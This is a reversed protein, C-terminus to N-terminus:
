WRPILMPSREGCRGLSQRELGVNNMREMEVNAAVTHIRAVVLTRQVATRGCRRMSLDFSCAVSMGIITQMCMIPVDWLLSQQLRVGVAGETSSVVIGHRYSSCRWACWLKVRHSRSMCVVPRGYGVVTAQEWGVGDKGEFKAGSLRSAPVVLDLPASVPRGAPLVIRQM